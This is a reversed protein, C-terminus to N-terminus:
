SNLSKVVLTNHIPCKKNMIINGHVQGVLGMVEM